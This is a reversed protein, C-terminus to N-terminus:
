FSRDLSFPQPYVFNNGHLCHTYKFLKYVHNEVSYASYIKFVNEAYNASSISFIEFPYLIFSLILLRHTFIKIGSFLRLNNFIILVYGYRKIEM